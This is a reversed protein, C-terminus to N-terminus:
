KGPPAPAPAAAPPALLRKGQEASLQYEFPRDSRAVMLQPDLQMVNLNTEGGNGLTVKITAVPKRGSAPLVGLASALRWEDVWRTLDDASLDPGPPTLQWKGAAQAVSFSDFRFAVPAEDPAFLQKSVLQYVGKPVLTGYRLSVPYIGDQTLVYQERSMPNFGGFAFSQQNITLRMAPENLDYRALGQAPYRDKATAQLIELLREVQMGDARAQVPATVNWDSGTKTVELPPNGPYEIRVTRADAPKITSLPLEAQTKSPKYYAFLALAAVAVILALNLWANKKM